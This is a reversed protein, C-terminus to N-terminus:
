AQASVKRNKIWTDLACAGAGYAALFLFTFCLLFAGDGQNEIPWLGAPFHGMFYAFAMEGSLIFAIPRTFLGLLIATGGFLELYGAFKILASLEVGEPMGGFWGLLKFGGAQIFIIAVAVRLLLVSIDVLKERNM